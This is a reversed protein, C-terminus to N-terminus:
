AASGWFGKWDDVTVHGRYLIDFLADKTGSDKSKDWTPMTRNYWKLSHKRKNALLFWHSDSTLYPIVLANVGIRNSAVTNIQNEATGPQGMEMTTELLRAAEFELDPPIVLTSLKVPNSFRGSEDVMTRAITLLAEMGAVSLAVAPNLQNEYTGGGKLLNHQQCLNDGGITTHLAGTFADNFVSWALNEQHDLTADALDKPMQVIIGYQDDDQMEMTVRFGLAYVTHVTRKRASQIPDDYAIPQGEGKAALTGLPSVKAVDEYAKTSKLIDFVKKYLASQMDFEKFYVHRLGVTLLESLTGSFTAM